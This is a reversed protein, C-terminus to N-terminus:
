VDMWAAQSQLQHLRFLQQDDFLPTNRGDPEVSKPHAEMRAGKGVETGAPGLVVPTGALRLNEEEPLREEGRVESREKPSRNGPGEVERAETPNPSTGISYQQPRVTQSASPEEGQREGSSSGIGVLGGDEANGNGLALGRSGEQVERELRRQAEEIERQGQSLEESTASRRLRFLDM